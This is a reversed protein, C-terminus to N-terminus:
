GSARFAVVLRAPLHNVFSLSVLDRGKWLITAPTSIQEEIERASFKLTATTGVDVTRPLRTRVLAGGAGISEIWGRLEEQQALLTARRHFPQLAYRDTLGTSVATLENETLVDTEVFQLGLERTRESQRSVWRVIVRKNPLGTLRVKCRDKMKVPCHSPVTLSIGHMSINNALASFRTSSSFVLAMLDPVPLFRPEVREDAQGTTGEEDSLLLTRALRTM